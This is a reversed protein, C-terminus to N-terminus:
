VGKKNVYVVISKETNFDGDSVVVTIEFEQPDFLMPAKWIISSNNTPGSFYGGNAKWSFKLITNPDPDSASVHVTLQGRSPLRSSASTGPNSYMMQIVPPFTDTSFDLPPFDSLDLEGGWWPDWGSSNNGITIDNITPKECSICFMLPLLLSLLITTTKM